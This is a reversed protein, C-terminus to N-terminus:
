RLLVVQPSLIQPGGKAGDDIVRVTISEGPHGGQIREWAMIGTGVLVAIAVALPVICEVQIQRDNGSHGPGYLLRQRRKREITAPPDLWRQLMGM